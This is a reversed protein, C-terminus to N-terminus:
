GIRRWRPLAIRLSPVCTKGVSAGDRAWDYLTGAAVSIQEATIIPKAKESENSAEGLLCKIWSEVHWKPILLVVPEIATIADQGSNALEAQLVGERAQVTLNDADTIVILLCRTKRGITGRCAAVQRPFEQQVFQSGSGQQAVHFHFSHKKHGARLLYRRLLNQHAKDECLVIINAIAESM